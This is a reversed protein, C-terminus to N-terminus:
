SGPYLCATVFFKCKGNAPESSCATHIMCIETSPPGAASDATRLRGQRHLPPLNRRQLSDAVGREPKTGDSGLLYAWCRNGSPERPSAAGFEDHLSHQLQECYGPNQRLVELIREREASLYAARSHEMIVTVDTVEAEAHTSSLRLNQFCFVHGPRLQSADITRSGPFERIAVGLVAAGGDAGSDRCDTLWASTVHMDGTSVPVVRTESIRLIVGVADFEELARGSLLLSQLSAVTRPLVRAVHVVPAELWRTRRGVSLQIPGQNSSYMCIWAPALNLCPDLILDLYLARPSAEMSGVPRRLTITRSRQPSQTPPFLSWCSFIHM